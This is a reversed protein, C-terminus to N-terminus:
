QTRIVWQCYLFRDGFFVQELALHDQRASQVHLARQCMPEAPIKTRQIYRGIGVERRIRGSHHLVPEAPSQADFAGCRMPVRGPDYQLWKRRRDFRFAEQDPLPIPIEAQRRFLENRKNLLFQLVVFISLDMMINSKTCVFNRFTCIFQIIVLLYEATRILSYLCLLHLSFHIYWSDFCCHDHHLIQFAISIDYKIGDRDHAGQDRYSNM